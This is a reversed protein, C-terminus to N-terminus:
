HASALKDCGPSVGPRRRGRNPVFASVSIAPSFDSHSFTASVSRLPSMGGRLLLRHPGLLTSEVCDIVPARYHRRGSRNLLALLGPRTVSCRRLRASYLLVTRSRKRCRVEVLRYSGRRHRRSRSRCYVAVDQRHRRQQHLLVQTGSLFDNGFDPARRARLRMRMAGTSSLISKVFRRFTKRAMVSRAHRRGIFSSSIGAIALEHLRASHLPSLGSAPM